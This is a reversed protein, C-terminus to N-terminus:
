RYRMKRLFVSVVVVFVGFIIAIQHPEPIAKVAQDSDLASIPVETSEQWNVGARGTLFTTEHETAM